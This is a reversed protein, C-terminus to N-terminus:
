GNSGASPGAKTDTSLSQPRRDLAIAAYSLAWAKKYQGGLRSHRTGSARARRRKWGLKAALSRKRPPNQEPRSM